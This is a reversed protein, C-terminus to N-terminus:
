LDSKCPKVIGHETESCRARADSEVVEVDPVVDKGFAGVELAIWVQCSKNLIDAPHQDPLVTLGLDLVHALRAEGM